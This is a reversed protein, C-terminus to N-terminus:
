FKYGIAFSLNFTTFSIQVPLPTETLGGVALATDATGREYGM